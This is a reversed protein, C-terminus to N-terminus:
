RSTLHSEAVRVDESKWDFVRQAQPGRPQASMDIGSVQRIRDKFWTEFAETSAGYRQFADPAEVDTV